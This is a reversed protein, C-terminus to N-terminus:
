LISCSARWRKDTRMLIRFLKGGLGHGFMWHEKMWKEELQRYMNTLKQQYDAHQAGLEHQAEQQARNIAAQAQVGYEMAKAKDRAELRACESDYQHKRQLLATLLKDCKDVLLQNYVQTTQQLLFTYDRNAPVSVAVTPAPGLM